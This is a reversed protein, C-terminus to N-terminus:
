RTADAGVKSTPENLTDDPLIQQSRSQVARVSVSKNPPVSSKGQTPSCPHGGCHPGGPPTPCASPGSAETYPRYGCCLRNAVVCKECATRDNGNCGTSSVQAFCGNGNNCSIIEIVDIAPCTCCAYATSASSLIGCIALLILKSSSVKM